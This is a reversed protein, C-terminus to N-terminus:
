LWLLSSTIIILVLLTICLYKVDRVKGFYIVSAVVRTYPTLMLLVIGLAVINMPSPNSTLSPGAEFVFSFFSRTPVQWQPSLTLNASGTQLYALILGSAALIGSSVVGIKLIWSIATELRRLDDSM